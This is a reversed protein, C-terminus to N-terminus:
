GAMPQLQTLTLTRYLRCRELLQHHQGDDIIRGQEMVIIRDSNVVTSLRHAIVFTTCGQRIQDLAGAIHAESESDIQSTAEDLILIAPNRLIARAICLRQCQGGSLGTGNEGLLTQYGEPLQQVFDDAHSRRAATIIEEESAHRRGYAINNVVTGGFLVSEQTVVGIQERLSRLSVDRTDMGDIRITGTTPDLLRPLLSLLTTKGSGNPGVFAVMQGHEVDLSVGSIAERDQDPYTFSVDEFTISADHRPLRPIQPDADVGTKEVPLTMLELVRSAAGSAEYLTSSLTSLPRLNAAAALLAVLVTMFESPDRRNKFVYWAAITAVVLVSWTALTGTLPSTMAKVRRMRMEENFLDRNICNFRRREYGEANHVKVVRIGRLSEGLAALMRGRMRLARRTARRIVKGFKRLLVAIIPASILAILTLYADILVASALAALATFLKTVTKSLIARYGTALLRTDTVVRSMLDSNGGHLLEILPAHILRRYLRRRWVMVARQIVTITLLEHMYRGLSGVLGLVAIIAMVIGFTAFPDEPIQSKAWAGIGDLPGGATKAVIWNGLSRQDQLLLKLIPLVLAIGSGFCAASILAGVLDWGLTGKFQTLM